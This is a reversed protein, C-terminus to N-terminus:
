SLRGPEGGSPNKATRGDLPLKELPSGHTLVDQGNVKTGRSRLCGYESNFTIVDIALKFGYFELEGIM